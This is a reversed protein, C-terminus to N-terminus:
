TRMHRGEMFRRRKERETDRLDRLTEKWQIPAFAFELHHFYGLFSMLPDPSKTKLRLAQMVVDWTYWDQETAGERFSRRPMLDLVIDGRDSTVRVALTGGLAVLIWNGFHAEDPIVETEIAFGFKSLADKTEELKPDM